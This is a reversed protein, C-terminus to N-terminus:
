GFQKVKTFANGAVFFRLYDNIQHDYSIEAEIGITFTKSYQPKIILEDYLPSQNIGQLSTENQRTGRLGLLVNLSGKKDTNIAKQLGLGFSTFHYFSTQPIQDGSQFRAYENLFENPDANGFTPREGGQGIMISPKLLLGLGLHRAYAIQMSLLNATGDAGGYGVRFEIANDPRHQASLPGVLFIFEIFLSLKKM